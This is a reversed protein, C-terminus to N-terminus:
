RRPLGGGGRGGSKAEPLNAFSCEAIELGRFQKFLQERLDPTFGNRTRAAYVLQNGEYYGLILADFTRAGVTYGGIVFGQGQNIRMKQWTRAPLLLMPEIFAANTKAM